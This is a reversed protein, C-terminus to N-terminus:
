ENEDSFIYDYVEEDIYHELFVQDLNMFQHNFKDKIKQVRKFYLIEEPVDAGALGEDIIDADLNEQYWKTMADRLTNESEAEKAFIKANKMSVVGMVVFLLFIASMVGYFMYPNGLRLPIVGLMGLIMFVLGIAGVILLTWASSRNEEARESNNRYTMSKESGKMKKSSEGSFAEEKEANEQENDSKEHNEQMMQKYIDDNKQAEEQERLAEQQLFVGAMTTAVDKDEKRVLLKYVGHIEDYKVTVGKLKNYELYKKLLNLKDENGFVLPELHDFQEEEVLECGCDACVKIGKRYENKCKPCWAM